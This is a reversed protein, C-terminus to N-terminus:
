DSISPVVVAGMPPPEAAGVGEPPEAVVDGGDASVVTVVLAEDEDVDEVDAFGVLAVAFLAPRTAEPADATMAMM